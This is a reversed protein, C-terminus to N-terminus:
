SAKVRKKVIEAQQKLLERRERIQADTRLSLKRKPRFAKVAKVRVLKKTDELVKRCKESLAQWEPTAQERDTAERDIPKYAPLAAAQSSRKQEILETIDGPKPFFKAARLYEHFAWELMEPRENQFSELWFRSEAPMLEKGAIQSALDLMRLLVVHQQSSSKGTASLANSQKVLKEM